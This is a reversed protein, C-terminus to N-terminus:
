KKVADLRPAALGAGAACDYAAAGVKLTGPPTCSCATVTCICLAVGSAVM